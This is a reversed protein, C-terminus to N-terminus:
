GLGLALGAAHVAFAVIWAVGCQMAIVAWMMKTGLENRVASVAAVCPTYLLTFTLFVFATLPSFLTSLAATSGGMLVTLTAVVNEKAGFGAVLAAASIWNGFGLPVFVPAVLAGLAALMSQAQDDVINFRIDFTQLFWIVVSAVFIITFAKTAFGKAKDWALRATTKLSPLRYNPLEM